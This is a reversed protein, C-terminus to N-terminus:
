KDISTMGIECKDGLIYTVKYGSNFEMEFSKGDLDSQSDPEIIEKKVSELTLTKAEIAPGQLTIFDSFKEPAERQQAVYIACGSTLSQKLSQAVTQQAEYTLQEFRDQTKAFQPIAIAAVIGLIIIGTIVLIPLLVIAGLICCVIIIKKKSSM